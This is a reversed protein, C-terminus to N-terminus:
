WPGTLTRRLCLKKNGLNTNVTQLIQGSCTVHPGNALVTKVIKVDILLTIGVVGM